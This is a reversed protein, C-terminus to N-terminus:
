RVVADLPEGGELSLVMNNELCVASQGARTLLGTHVCTQHTCTSREVWAGRSDACVVNLCRGEVTFSVTEDLGSLAIRALERGDQRVVAYLSDAGARALGLAFLAAALLLVAACVAADGRTLLRGRPLPAPNSGNKTTGPM